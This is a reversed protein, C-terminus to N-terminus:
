RKDNQSCWYVKCLYTHKQNQQQVFQLLLNRGLIKIRLYSSERERERERERKKKKKKYVRVHLQFNVGVHLKEHDFRRCVSHSYQLDHYVCIYGVSFRSKAKKAVLKLVTRSLGASLKM